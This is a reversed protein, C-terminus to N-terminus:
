TDQDLLHSKVVTSVKRNNIVKNIDEVSAKEIGKIDKFEKLLAKRRKEGVGPISELKSLKSEKRARKRYHTIAFRHAEDRLDILLAPNEIDIQYVNGDRVIWFEDMKRFGARKLHKGKSIGMLLINEPLYKKIVGLQSKGGDILIIDPKSGLSKDEESGIHKVRRQLVEKLMAPDDPTDKGKIKFIRYHSRNLAGNTSVVMSGYAHKGQINSIDYCEIRELNEIDLEMELEQFSLDRSIARKSKYDSADKLYNFEINQGLYKLDNIRDRLKAAKEYKREKSYQKMDKEMKKIQGKKRGSLFKVIENINKRYDEKSIYGHYPGPCLGLHYYLSPSEENPDCSTCFPYLKRLYTFVRKVALGSPYPGFLRGKKYEEDSLTRVIKVTPFDEKTSVYIWAYSKDDKLDSNYKPKHKKILASELVLAEVENNTETIELDEVKPMMQRIRPRDYIDSRFYSNVRSRLNLAKGIYLIKGNKDLFKYVGSVQPLSELKNELLKNM